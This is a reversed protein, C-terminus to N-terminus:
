RWMYLVVAPMLLLVWGVIRIFLGPTTKSISILNAGLGTFGGFEEAFWICGLPILLFMLMIPWTDKGGSIIAFILYAVAVTLSLIRNWNM